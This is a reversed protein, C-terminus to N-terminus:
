QVIFLYIYSGPSLTICFKSVRAGGGPGAQRREVPNKGSWVHSRPTVQEPTLSAYLPQVLLRTPANDRGIVLYGQVPSHCYDCCRCIGRGDRRGGERKSERQSRMGGKEMKRAMKM